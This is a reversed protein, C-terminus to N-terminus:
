DMFSFFYVVLKICAELTKYLDKFIYEKANTKNLINTFNIWIFIHLRLQDVNVDTYCELEVSQCKHQKWNRKVVLVCTFCVNKYRDGKTFIWSNKNLVQRKRVLQCSNKIIAMAIKLETVSITM